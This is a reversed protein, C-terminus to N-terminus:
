SGSGTPVTSAISMYMNDMHVGFSSLAGVAAVCIVAILVAYETATPGDDSKLFQVSKCFITNM